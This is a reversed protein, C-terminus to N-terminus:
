KCARVFAAFLRRQMESKKSMHEPHWQVGICFPYNELEVGEITGDDGVASVRLGEGLEDVAQHHMSNVPICEAGYVGYLMSDRCITVGHTSKARHFFDMHGKIDQVLTGGLAANMLQIGRCIGLVPKGAELFAQLLLPEAEDRARDPRGCEECPMQGYLAPDVDAGGPLLLGACGLAEDAAREPEDTEVWRLRAGARMLSQEYKGKMYRRFPDTGTQPAAIVCESMKEVRMELLLKLRVIKPWMRM